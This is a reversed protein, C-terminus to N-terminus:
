ATLANVDERLRFVDKPYGKEDEKGDCFALQYDRLDILTAAAGTERAGRLAVQLAMRTYSGPRLSGCIGVIQIPNGANENQAM